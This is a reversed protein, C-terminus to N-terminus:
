WPRRRCAGELHTRQCISREAGQRGWVALRRQAQALPRSRMRGSVRRVPPRSGVPGPAAPVRGRSLNTQLLSQGKRCIELSSLLGMMKYRNLAPVLNLGRAFWKVLETVKPLNSSAQPRLTKRHLILTIVTGVFNFSSM